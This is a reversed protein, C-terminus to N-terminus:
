AHASRLCALVSAVLVCARCLLQPQRWVAPTSRRAASKLRSCGVTRKTGQNSPKQCWVCWEAPMLTGDFRCCSATLTAVCPSAVATAAVRPTAVATATVAEAATAETATVAEAAIAETAVAPSRISDATAASESDDDTSGDVRRRVFLAYGRLTVLKM